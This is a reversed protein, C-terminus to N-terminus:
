GGKKAEEAAKANNNDELAVRALVEEAEYLRRTWSWRM